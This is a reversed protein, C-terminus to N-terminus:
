FTYDIGKKRLIDNVKKTESSDLESEIARPLSYNMDGFEGHALCGSYARTGYIKILQMLDVQNKLGNFVAYISSETTGCDNFAEALKQSYAELQANSVTQKIGQKELERKERETADLLDKNDREEKKKNISKIISRSTFYVIAIGGVAIVGKAWTPLGNWIELAKGQAM